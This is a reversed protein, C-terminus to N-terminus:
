EENSRKNFKEKLKYNRGQKMLWINITRDITYKRSSRRVTKMEENDEEYSQSDKGIREKEKNAQLPKNKFLRDEEEMEMLVQEKVKRNM